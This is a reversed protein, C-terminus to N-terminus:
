RGHPLDFLMLLTKQRSSFNDDSLILLQDSTQGPVVMLAEFNDVSLPAELHGHETPTVVTGPQVAEEPFSMVKVRVGELLSYARALLIMRGGPGQKLATPSFASPLNLKFPTAAKHAGQGDITWAFLHGDSTRGKEALLMLQGQGGFAMAEFGGNKSLPQFVEHPVPYPERPADFGRMIELRHQQEFGVLFAGDVLPMASELDVLEKDPDEPNRGHISGIRADSIVTDAQADFTATLWIGADSFLTLQSGQLDMASWGGFGETDSTLHWGARFTLNGVRTQTPDKQSLVIPDATVRIARGPQDTGAFVPYAQLILLLSLTLGRLSIM